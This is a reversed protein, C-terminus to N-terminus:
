DVKVEVLRAGDPVAIPFQRRAESVLDYIEVVHDGVDVAIREAPCLQGTAQRDVFVYYRGSSECRVRIAGAGSRVPAPVLAARHQGRGVVEAVHLEYGPLALAVNLRDSSGAVTVPTVGQETGDLFVRAGPPLSEIVLRDPSRPADGGAGRSPDHSVANTAIGYGLVLAAIGAVAAGLVWRGGRRSGAASPGLAAASPVPPLAIAAASVERAEGRPALGLDGPADPGGAEEPPLLPFRGTQPIAFILHGSLQQEHTDAVQARLSSVRDAVAGRDAAVGSVRMAADLEDALARADPFRDGLSPALCRRLVAALPAAVHLPAPADALMARELDPAAAGIFPRTGLLEYAIVGLSFVDSSATAPDGRLQEPALYPLRAALSPDTAPRLPLRSSLIGFDTVQIDGGITAVVNSPSLGLHLVGRGHAYGLTRAIVAVLGLAAGVPLPDGRDRGLGILQALDLGVVLTTATFTDGGAVGFEVLRAIRPHDLGGYTRAAQSLKTAVGPTQVVEPHFRKIALPREMGAVGIVRARHVEGNPGGGLSEVLHYRGLRRGPTSAGM